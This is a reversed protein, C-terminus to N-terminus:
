TKTASSVACSRKSIKCKRSRNKRTASAKSRSNACKRRTAKCGHTRNPIPPSPNARPIPAAVRRDGARHALRIRERIQQRATRRDIRVVTGGAEGDTHCPAGPRTAFRRADTGVARARARAHPHRSVSEAGARMGQLLRAHDPRLGDIAHDTEQRGSRRRGVRHDDDALRAVQDTTRHSRTQANWRSTRRERRQRRDHDSRRCRRKRGPVGIRYLTRRTEHRDQERRPALRGVVARREALRDHAETRQRRRHHHGRVQRRPDHRDGRKGHWFDVHAIRVEAAQRRANGYRNRPQVAGSQHRRAVTRCRADAVLHCSRERRSADHAHQRDQPRRPHRDDVHRRLTQRVRARERHAARATPLLAYTLEFFLRITRALMASADSRRALIAGSKRPICHFREARRAGVGGDAQHQEARAFEALFHRDLRLPKRDFHNRDITVRIRRRHLHRMATM